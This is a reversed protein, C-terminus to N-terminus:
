KNGFDKKPFPGREAEYMGDEWAAITLGKMEALGAVTHVFLKKLTDSRFLLM